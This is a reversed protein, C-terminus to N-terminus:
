SIAPYIGAPLHVLTKRGARILLPVREGARIVPTDAGM